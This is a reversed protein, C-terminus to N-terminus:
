EDNSRRNWGEVAETITEWGYIPHSGEAGCEDCIVRYRTEGIIIINKSGCFPCSKDIMNDIM